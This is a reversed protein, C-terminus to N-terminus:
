CDETTNVWSRVLQEESYTGPPISALTLSRQAPSRVGSCSRVHTPADLAKILKILCSQSTLLGTQRDHPHCPCSATDSVTRQADRRCPLALQQLPVPTHQSIPFLCDNVILLLEHISQERFKASAIFIILRHVCKLSSEDCHTFYLVKTGILTTVM